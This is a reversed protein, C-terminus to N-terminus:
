VWFIPVQFTPLHFSQVGRPVTESTFCHTRPWSVAHSARSLLMCRWAGAVAASLRRGCCTDDCARAELLAPQHLSKASCHTTKTESHIRMSVAFACNVDPGVWILVHVLTYGHFAQSKAGLCITTLGRASAVQAQTQSVERGRSCTM